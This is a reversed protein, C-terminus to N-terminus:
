QKELVGNLHVLRQKTDAFAAKCLEDGPARCGDLDGEGASRGVCCRWIGWLDTPEHEGIVSADGGKELADDEM